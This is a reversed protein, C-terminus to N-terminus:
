YNIIDNYVIKNEDNILYQGTPFDARVWKALFDVVGKREVRYIMGEPNEYPMINNTKCNLLYLLNDTPMPLGRHLLRPMQLVDKIRDRLEDQSIRINDSNFLDFFIIPNGIIRYKIGTAVLLWEGVIREGNKLISKFLSQNKVVYEAFKHHQEFPSTRADYGSRQLPIITNNIKAIGVNSGDYKEYVFIEDHRDRAKTTLIREQGEHIYYDGSGLKSNSLHPISGYNKIGLPKLQQRSMLMSM